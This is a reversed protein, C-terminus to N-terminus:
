TLKVVVVENEYFYNFKVIIHKKSDLKFTAIRHVKDIYTLLKIDM